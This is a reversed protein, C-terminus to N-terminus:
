KEETKPEGARPLPTDVWRQARDSWQKGRTWYIMNAIQVVLDENYKTGYETRWVIELINEALRYASHYDM